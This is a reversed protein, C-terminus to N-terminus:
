STKAQLRLCRELFAQMLRHPSMSKPQPTAMTTRKMAMGGRANDDDNSDSNGDENTDGDDNTNDDDHGCFLGNSIL